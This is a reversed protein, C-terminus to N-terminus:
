ILFPNMFIFTKSQKKPKRKTVLVSYFQRWQHQTTVFTVKEPTVWNVHGMEQEDLWARVSHHIIRSLFRLTTAKPVTNNEPQMKIQYQQLVQQCFLQWAGECSAFTGFIGSHPVSGWALLCVWLSLRLSKELDFRGDGEIDDSARTFKGQGPSM